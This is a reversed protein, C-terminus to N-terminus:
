SAKKNLMKAHEEPKRLEFPKKDRLVAFIVFVLKHMVAGLAVKKAKNVCKKRYFDYLVPNSEEGNRKKRVSALATTFLVRRLLRSGRKSMKNRTGEFQGSQKVSPDIGFFAVLKDPNPFASFDGIEALITAATILGIGPITCLLDITMSLLPLEKDADLSLLELIASSVKNLSKSLSRVMSINVDLMALNAPSSLSLSEFAKAKSLLLEYKQTAWTVAKRATKRILEILEARNAKIIHKPTPYKELISLATQSCVDKFVETFPLMIQDVVGILRNKYATLEDSLNFYQRCLSRLCELEENPVNTTRLEQFRYLLAVKRADVKDNKVKRIGLNKISDTQLPNIVCVDYGAKCLSYFLIKHYHGTSEMVVTPRIAFDKEVKRLMEVAKDINASADHYIKMRAIVTNNPSLVAMESFLKGVDIGAIPLLNM